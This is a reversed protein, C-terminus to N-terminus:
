VHPDGKKEKVHMFGEAGAGGSRNVVILPQPSLKHKEVLPFIFRAMIDAGGGTGAPVVFEVSKTPQWAATAIGSWLGTVGVALAAVLAWRWAKLIQQTRM